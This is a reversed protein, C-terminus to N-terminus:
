GKKTDRRADRGADCVQPPVLPPLRDQVRLARALWARVRIFTLGKEHRQTGAHRGADCVNMRLMHCYSMMKPSAVRAFGGPIGLFTVVM